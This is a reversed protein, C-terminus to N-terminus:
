TPRSTAGLRRIGTGADLVLLADGDQGCRSAPRTAATARRDGPGPRGALRPHGLVHGERGPESGSSRWRASRRGGQGDLPFATVGIKRRFAMSGTSRSRGIPPAISAPARHRAAASRRSRPRRRRGVPAFLTAWQGGDADRGDRRLPQRAAARRARQLLPPQRRTWSSSRCPLSSALQRMLILEVAKQFM